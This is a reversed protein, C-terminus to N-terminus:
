VTAGHINQVTHINVEWRESISVAGVLRPIVLSLQCQQNIMSPLRTISMVTIKENGLKVIHCLAFKYISATANGSYQARVTCQQYWSYVQWQILWPM